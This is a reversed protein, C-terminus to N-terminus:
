RSGSGASPPVGERDSMDPDEGKASCGPAPKPNGGWRCRDLTPQPRPPAEPHDLYKVEPLTTLTCRPLDPRVMGLRRCPVTTKRGSGRDDALANSAISLILVTALVIPKIM